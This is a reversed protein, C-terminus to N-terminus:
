VTVTVQRGEDLQSIIAPQLLERNIYHQYAGNPGDFRLCARLQLGSRAPSIIVQSYGLRIAQSAIQERTM